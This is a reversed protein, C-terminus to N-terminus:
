FTVDRLVIRDRFATITGAGDTLAPAIRLLEDIRSSAALTSHMSTYAAGLMSLQTMAARGVYLFLFFAPTGLRGALLEWAALLLLAAELGYHLLVAGVAAGVLMPSTRVMLYAYFAILLPATLATGVITELGATTANADAELRSVLEGTRQRNFFSMSLGLLHRFLDRQLAATARVRIWLGFLYNGFDAIGKLIGVALYVLCLVVIARFRDDVARVGVWDFFAAGLNTLSLGDNPATGSVGAGVPVGLALDLIPAMLVPFLASLATGVYSTLLLLGVAWWYPASYNRLLWLFRRVDSARTMGPEAKARARRATPTADPAERTPDGAAH